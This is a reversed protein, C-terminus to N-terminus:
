LTESYVGDSALNQLCRGIRTMVSIKLVDMELYCKHSHNAMIIM